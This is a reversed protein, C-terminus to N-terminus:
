AWHWHPLVTSGQSLNKLFGSLKSALIHSLVRALAMCPLVPLAASLPVTRSSLISASVPKLLFIVSMFLYLISLPTSNFYLMKGAEKRERM